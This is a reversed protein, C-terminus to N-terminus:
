ISFEPILIGDIIHIIGNNTTISRTINVNGNLTLVDNTKDIIIKNYPRYSRYIRPSTKLETKGTYTNYYKYTINKILDDRTYVGKIMSSMIINKANLFDKIDINRNFVDNTPIFITIRSILGLTEEMKTFKVLQYFKSLEPIKSIMGLISDNDIYNFENIEDEYPIIYNTPVFNM